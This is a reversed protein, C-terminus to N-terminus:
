DLSRIGKWLGSKLLDVMVDRLVVKAGLAAPSLEEDPLACIANIRRAWPDLIRQMLFRSHADPYRAVAAWPQLTAGLGADVADMLLPLSDMEMVIQPRVGNQAFGADLTSRLGHAGTPLILGLGKLSKLSIAKGKPGEHQPSRILYLDEQLITQSQWRRPSPSPLASHVLGEFLVALDIQRSVLMHSLHGSLSEVVHLRVDPYRSRMARILPLGLAAATTPALGVSVTGSLRATKAVRSAQEAHRLTLQAQQYFALGAPTPSVGSPTRQLLRTALESELRTIQQSLGSQVLGLDIAARSISGMDVVRVFCRLQKLEM